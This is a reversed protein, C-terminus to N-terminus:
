NGYARLTITGTLAGIQNVKISVKALVLPLNALQDGILELIPYTINSFSIEIQRERFRGRDLLVGININNGPIIYSMSDILTAIVNNLPNITRPTIRNPFRKNMMLFIGTNTIDIFANNQVSWNFLVNTRVGGSKVAARLRGNQYDIADVYWGPVTLLLGTTNAVWHIQEAPDPSSLINYFSQYPNVAQIIVKPLEKEPLNIFYWGLAALGILALFMLLSKTPFAGIGTTRLVTDVLQLQFARVTPMTPFIPAALVNFSKVLSSDLVFKDVDDASESIPVDGYIYVDFANQQTRFVVLEDPIADIPFSGDLYVSGSKVIVLIAETTNAIAECYILDSPRKFYHWVTEGLLYGPDPSFAVEYTTPAKKQLAIYEGYSESLTIIERRLLGPKKVTIVDRYSPIVFREGDERTIYAM